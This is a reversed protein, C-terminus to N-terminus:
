PVPIIEFRHYEDTNNVDSQLVDNGDDNIMMRKRNDPAGTSDLYYTGDGAAKITWRTWGGSKSLKTSDTTSSGGYRLRPEKGGAFRDIFFVGSGPEVETFRWRVNQGAWAATVANPQEMNKTLYVQRNTISNRIFWAMGNDLDPIEEPIVEGPLELLYQAMLDADELNMSATNHRVIAAAVTPASGDHLYPKSSSIGLLTPTDLGDLDASLRTGSNETITGVDHRAGSPSDTLQPGSHCSDCGKRQFLDKGLQASASLGSASVLPSQDHIVLSAMYAALADLDPSVGAKTAGFPESRTGEFFDEDFMLGLGGFDRIQAEFDHTEDFNGTWHSPGHGQGKGRLSITNRLGEGFGSFDWVRGDDGGDAHCSACSMYELNALREDRADYFLKKGLLVETNLKEETVLDVTDLLSVEDTTGEVLGEIDYFGVTRDM